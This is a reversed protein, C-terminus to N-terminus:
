LKVAKRKEQIAVAAYLQEAEHGTGAVRDEIGQLKKELRGIWGSNVREAKTDSIFKEPDDMAAKVWALATSLIKLADAQDDKTVDILSDLTARGDEYSRRLPLVEAGVTEIENRRAEVAQERMLIIKNREQLEKDVIQLNGQWTELEEERERLSSKVTCTISDTLENEVTQRMDAWREQRDAEAEIENRIACGAVILFGAGMVTLSVKIWLVLDPATQAISAYLQPEIDGVAVWLRWGVFCATVAIGAALKWTKM